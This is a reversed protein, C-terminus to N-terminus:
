SNKAELVKGPTGEQPKWQCSKGQPPGRSVRSLHDGEAAGQIKVLPTFVLKGLALDPAQSYNRSRTQM